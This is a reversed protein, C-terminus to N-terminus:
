DSVSDACLLICVTLSITEESLATLKAVSASAAEVSQQMQVPQMLPWVLASAAASCSLMGNLPRWALHYCVFLLSPEDVCCFAEMYWFYLVDASASSCHMLISM